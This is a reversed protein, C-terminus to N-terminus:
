LGTQLVDPCLASPGPGSGRRRRAERGGPVLLNCDVRRTCALHWSLLLLQVIDRKLINGIKFIPSSAMEPIMNSALKKPPPLSIWYSYSHHWQYRALGERGPPPTNTSPFCVFSLTGQSHATEPSGLSVLRQLLRVIM